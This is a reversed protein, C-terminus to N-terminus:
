GVSRNSYRRTIGNKEPRVPSSSFYPRQEVGRAGSVEWTSQGSVLEGGLEISLGVEDLELLADRLRPNALRDRGERVGVAPDDQGTDCIVADDLSDRSVSLCGRPDM